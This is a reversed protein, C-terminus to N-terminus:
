LYNEIWLISKLAVRLVSEPMEQSQRNGNESAAVLGKSAEILENRIAEVSTIALSRELCYRALDQVPVGQQKARTKLQALVSAPVRIYFRTKKDNMFYRRRRKM